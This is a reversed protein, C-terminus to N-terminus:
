YASAREACWAARARRFGDGRSGEAAGERSALIKKPTLEILFDM